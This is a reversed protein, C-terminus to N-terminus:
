QHPGFYTQFCFSQINLSFKKLSKALFSAEARKTEEPQMASLFM